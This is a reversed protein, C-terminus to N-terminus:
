YSCLLWQSDRVSKVSRLKQPIELILIMVLIVANQAKAMIGSGGQEGNNVTGGRERNNM